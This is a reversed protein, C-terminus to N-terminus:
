HHDKKYQELQEKTLVKQVEKKYQTDSLANKQNKMKPYKTYRRKDLNKIKKKQADTLKLNKFDKLDDDSQKIAQEEKPETKHEDKNKQQQAQATLAVLLSLTFLLKKM